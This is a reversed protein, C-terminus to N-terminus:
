ATAQAFEEDSYKWYEGNVIVINDGPRYNEEWNDNPYGSGAVSLIDGGVAAYDHRVNRIYDVIEQADAITYKIVIAEFGIVTDRIQM